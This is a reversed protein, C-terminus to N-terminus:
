ARAPCSRFPRVGCGAFTSTSAPEAHVPAFAGGRSRPGPGQRRGGEALGDLAATVVRRRLAKLGHVGPQTRAMTRLRPQPPVAILRLARIRKASRVPKTTTAGGAAATGGPVSVWSRPCSHVVVRSAGSGVFGSAPPSGQTCSAPWTTAGNEAKRGVSVQVTLGPVRSNIAPTVTSHLVASPGGKEPLSGAENRAHAIASLRTAESATVTSPARSDSRLTTVPGSATVRGAGLM